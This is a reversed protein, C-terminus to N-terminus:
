VCVFLYVLPSSYGHGGVCRLYYYALSYVSASRDTGDSILAVEPPTIPTSSNTISVSTIVM